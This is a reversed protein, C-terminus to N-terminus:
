KIIFDDLIIDADLGAQMLMSYANEFAIEFPLEKIDLLTQLDFGYEEFKELYTVLQQTFAREQKEDILDRLADMENQIEATAKNVMATMLEGHALRNFYENRKESNETVLSQNTVYEPEGRWAEEYIAIEYALDNDIIRGIYEGETIIYKEIM